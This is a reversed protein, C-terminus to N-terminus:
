NCSVSVGPFNSLKTLSSNYDITDFGKSEKLIYASMLSPIGSENQGFISGSEWSRESLIEFPLEEGYITDEFEVLLYDSLKGFNVIVKYQHLETVGGANAYYANECQGRLGQALAINTLLLSLILTTKKM